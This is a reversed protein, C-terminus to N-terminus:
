EPCWYARRWRAESGCGSLRAVAAPLAVIPEARPPAAAPPQKVYFVMFGAVLIAIVIVLGIIQRVTFFGDRDWLLNREMATRQSLLARAYLYQHTARLGDAHADTLHLGHIRFRKDPESAM